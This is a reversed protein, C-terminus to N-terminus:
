FKNAQLKHRDKINPALRPTMTTTENLDLDGELTELINLEERNGIADYDRMGDPPIIVTVPILFLLAVALFLM